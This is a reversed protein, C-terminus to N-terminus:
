SCTNWCYDFGDCSTQIKSDPCNEPIDANCSIMMFTEIKVGLCLCKQCEDKQFVLKTLLYAIIGLIILVALIIM